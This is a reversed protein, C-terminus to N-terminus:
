ITVTSLDITNLTTPFYVSCSIYKKMKKNSFVQLGQKIGCANRIQM